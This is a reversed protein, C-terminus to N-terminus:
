LVIAKKVKKCPRSYYNNILFNITQKINNIKEDINKYYGLFQITIKYCNNEIKEMNINAIYPRITNAIEYEIDICESENIYTLFNSINLNFYIYVNKVTLDNNLENYVKISDLIETTDNFTNMILILKHKVTM